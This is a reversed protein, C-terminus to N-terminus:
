LLIPKRDLHPQVYMTQMPKPRYETHRSQMIIADERANQSIQEVLM